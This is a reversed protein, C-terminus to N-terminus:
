IAQAREGLGLHIEPASGSQFSGGGHLERLVTLETGLIEVRTGFGNRNSTTGVCQLTISQATPETENLLAMSPGLQHSVALDPKGDRNLDGSAVGRGIWSQQFYDGAERSVDILRSESGNRFFLPPM